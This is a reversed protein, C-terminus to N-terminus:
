CVAELDLQLGVGVPRSRVSKGCIRWNGGIFRWSNCMVADKAYRCWRFLTRRIIAPKEVMAVKVEQTRSISDKNM